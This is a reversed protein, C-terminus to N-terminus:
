RENPLDFSVCLGHPKLANAGISGNHAKVIAACVYLGIGMSKKRGDIPSNEHVPRGSFLLKVAQESVGCGDDAVEFRVYGDRETVSYLLKTMGTAHHVANEMLNLLVQEILLPDMPVSVFREPLSTNIRVDPYKKKLKRIAVDSLEEIPTDKLKLNIRGDELKTVSLLNEVIDILWGADEKIGNILHRYKELDKDDYDLLTESSGYISTLPTRLDHSIARLLNARMQEIEMERRKREQIKIQTTMMSTMITVILMVVVSIFNEFITFNFDFFPFTFAYNVALVSIFSAVIGVLYGGTFRSILFVALNFALPIVATVEMQDQLVLCAAFTIALVVGAFISDKVITKVDNEEMFFSCGCFSGTMRHVSMYDIM